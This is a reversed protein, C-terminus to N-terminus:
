SSQIKLIFVSSTMQKGGQSATFLYAPKGNHMLLQPREVRGFRHLTKPPPSPVTVYDRLAEFAVKPEGWHVGDTSEFMLRVDHNFYGMDCAIM